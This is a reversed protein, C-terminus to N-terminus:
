RRAANDAFLRANNIAVAAHDALRLLAQEEPDALTRDDRNAVALFGEVREDITIPVVMYARIGEATVVARFEPGIRADELYSNTRFPRGTALVQGAAGQGPAIRCSAYSAHRAGPWQRFVVTDLAADRLGIFAMDCRCIERAGEAIRPLVTELDLSTNITRVVATLLEAERRRRGADEYLRANEIAIAAQDALLGALDREEATVGGRRGFAVILAGVAKGQHILPLALCGHLDSREALDRHRWRPDRQIDEIYEVRRAALVAGALSADRPVPDTHV